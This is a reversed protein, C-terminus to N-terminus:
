YRAIEGEIEKCVGVPLKFSSIAHNPMAMAVSKILVEKGAQSLFREARGGMRNEINKRVEEFVVKKSQGFDAQLGLHKGFGERVQICTIRLIKKRMRKTCNSGFFLSSKDKNIVQGSGEAYQDLVSIVGLAEEETAHCFVVSDNAFLLHSVSVGGSSVRFGHLAGDEEKRRLVASM